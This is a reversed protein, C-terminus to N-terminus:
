EVTVPVFVRRGGVQSFWCVHEAVVDFMLQWEGKGPNPLEFQLTSAEGVPLTRCPGLAVRFFDRVYRGQADHLGVGLAVGGHGVEYPLWDRAGSNRLVASGPIRELTQFRRRPLIVDLEAALGNRRRSDPRDEDGKHLFFVRHWRLGGAVERGFQALPEGGGLLQRFEELGVLHLEPEFVALRMTRFGIASASTWVDEVVVDNEIVCHDRMEAQAGTSRSHEPGPEAFGAIGGPRLVRHMEALIEDPNAVHHFADMCFIRDVSADALELRRGDFQVFRPPVHSGFVPHREYLQRGIQLATPSLDVAIVELGLQTLMRSMWCTGAAFDMVVMGPCPDLGRLLLAMRQLLTACEDVTVFPKCLWRTPDPERAFYADAAAALQEPTLSAILEKVDIPPPAKSGPAAM